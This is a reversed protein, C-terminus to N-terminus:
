QIIYDVIQQQPVIQMNDEDVLVIKAPILSNDAGYGQINVEAAPKKVLTATDVALYECGRNEPTKSLRFNYIDKPMNAPYFKEWCGVNGCPLIRIGADNKKIYVAGHVTIGNESEKAAPANMYIFDSCKAYEVPNGNIIARYCFVHPEKLALWGYPPLEFTRGEAEIKWNSAPNYNVYVQLGKQYVVRIKGLEQTNTLLAKSTSIFNSGDYYEIKKVNDALYEPQVAMMTCYLQLMRSLPPMYDYGMIGMHGYALSAAILKYYGSPAAPDGQDTQMEKWDEESNFLQSCYGMGLGHGFPHIKLLDFDVLPAMDATSKYKTPRVMSAYDADSMGAYFWRHYGEGIVLGNWKRTEDMILANGTLDFRAKGAGEVGEEYDMAAPGIVSHIDLYTCDAPAIEKTIQGVARAINISDKLKLMYEGYWWGRYLAGSSKLAIKNESWYENIPSVSPFYTYTSFLYGLDKLSKRYEIWNQFGYEPRPRWRCSITSYDKQGSGAQHMNHTGAILNDMGYRKLTSFLSIDTYYSHFYIWKSMKERNPSIPNRANPLVDAFEPSVSILIRDRLDNRKGSTLPIYQTEKMLPILGDAPSGVKPEVYSFDSNFCDPLVSVFVGNGCAMYPGDTYIHEIRNILLYPVFFQRGDELGSVAGFSVGGALDSKCRIDVLLTLGKLQYEAEWTIAPQQKSYKWIVKYMNGNLESSIVEGEDVVNQLASGYKGLMIGGGQTPKFIKSNYKVTVGNLFGKSPEIDYGIVSGNIESQFLVGNDTVNVTTLVGAPPTPLMGDNSTLYSFDEPKLSHTKPNRRNTWFSLSELFIESSGVIDCERIEISEFSMPWKVRKRDERDLVGTELNWIASVVTGLDVVFKQGSADSLNILVRLPNNDASESRRYYGGYIWLGVTDFPYEEILIPKPPRIYATTSSVAKTESVIRSTTKDMVSGGQRAASGGEYTFKAVRDRWIHEEMSASLAVNADGDVELVWGRLDEFTIQPIPYEERAAWTIEYPTMGKVADRPLDIVIPVQNLASSFNAALGFIFFYISVNIKLNVM